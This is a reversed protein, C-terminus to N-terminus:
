RARASEEFLQTYWPLSTELDRVTLAVHALPPFSSM